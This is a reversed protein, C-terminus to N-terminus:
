DDTHNEMREFDLQMEATRETLTSWIISGTRIRRTLETHLDTISQDLAASTRSVSRHHQQRQGQSGALACAVAMVRRPNVRSSRLCTRTGLVGEAELALDVLTDLERCSVEYDDRLALPEAELSRCDLYPAHGESGFVAAYQDMIGCPMGVFANEAFQCSRAVDLPALSERYTCHVM